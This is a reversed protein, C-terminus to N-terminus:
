SLVRGALLAVLAIIALIVQTPDDRHIGHVVLATAATWAFMWGVFTM